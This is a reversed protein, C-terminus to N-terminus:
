LAAKVKKAIEDPVWKRWVDEYDKLFKEAGEEGEAQNEDMFALMANVISNPWSRKSVYSFAEPAMEAFRSSTVTMVDSRTWDNKKPDVCNAQGTCRAWEASDHDVGMELRVLDYKGLIATPAWYYGFWGQR